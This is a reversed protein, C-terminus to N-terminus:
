IVAEMSLVFEWFGFLNLQVSIHVGIDVVPHAGM